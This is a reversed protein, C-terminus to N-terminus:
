ELCVPSNEGGAGVVEPGHERIRHTLPDLGVDVQGPNRSSAEAYHQVVDVRGPDAERKLINM